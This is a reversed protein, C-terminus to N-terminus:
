RARALRRDLEVLMRTAHMTEEFPVLPVHMYTTDDGRWRKVVHVPGLGAGAAAFRVDLYGLMLSNTIVRGDCTTRASAVYHVDGGVRRVARSRARDFETLWGTATNYTTRM